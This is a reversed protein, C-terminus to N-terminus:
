LFIKWKRTLDGTIEHRYGSKLTFKFFIKYPFKFNIKFINQLWSVSAKSLIWLMHVLAFPYTIQLSFTSVNPKIKSSEILFALLMRWIALGSQVGFLTVGLLQGAKPSPDPHSQQLPLIRRTAISPLQLMIWKRRSLFLLNKM